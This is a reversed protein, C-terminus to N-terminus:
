NLKNKRLYRAFYNPPGFLDFRVLSSWQHETQDDFWQADVVPQEKGVLGAAPPHVFRWHFRWAVLIPDLRSFADMGMFQNPVDGLGLLSLITPPVDVDSVLNNLVQGRLNAPMGPTMIVFPIRHVVRIDAYTTGVQPFKNDYWMGHDSVLVVLTHPLERKLREYFGGWAWDVYQNIKEREFADRDIFKPANHPLRKPAHNSLTLISAYFPQKAKKLTDVAHNFMDADNIGWNERVMAEPFDNKGFLHDINHYPHFTTRNNFHNNTGCIFYTEYGRHKFIDSLCVINTLPMDPQIYPKPLAYVSCLSAQQGFHTM